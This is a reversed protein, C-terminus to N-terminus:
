EGSITGEIEKSARVLENIEQMLLICLEPHSLILSPYAMFIIVAAIINAANATVAHPPPPVCGVGEVTAGAVVAGAAGLVNLLPTDADPHLAFLISFTLRHTRSPQLIRLAFM